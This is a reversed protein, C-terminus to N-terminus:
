FDSPTHNAFTYTKPKQQPLQQAAHRHAEQQQPFEQILFETAKEAKAPTTESPPSANSSEPNCSQPSSSWDEEPPNCQDLPQEYTIPSIHTPRPMHIVTSQQFSNDEPSPQPPADSWSGTTIPGSSCPPSIDQFTTYHSPASLPPVMSQYQLQNLLDFALPTTPPSTIDFHMPPQFVYNGAIQPNPTLGFKSESPTTPLFGQLDEPTLPTPPALTTPAASPPCMMAAMEGNSAAHFVGAETFNSLGLPSRQASSVKRIGPYRSNMNQTSKAHRVAHGAGFGSVRTTPSMSSPGVLSRNLGATGIAAPRPRKRRAALDLEREPHPRLTSSEILPPDLQSPHQPSQGVSHIGINGLSDALEESGSGRRSLPDISPHLSSFAMNSYADGNVGSNPLTPGTPGPWQNGWGDSQQQAYQANPYGEVGPHMQPHYEESHPHVQSGDSPQPQSNMASIDFTADPTHPTWVLSSDTSDGWESFTSPPPQVSESSLIVSPPHGPSTIPGQTQVHQNEDQEQCYQSRAAVAANLARQLSAFSANQGAIDPKRNSKRSNSGPTGSHEEAVSVTPVSPPQSQASESAQDSNSETQSSEDIPTTATATPAGESSSGNDKWREAENQAQMREFEEQRKQQKAKARRNQFWNAVRPLTLNTQLALQRKTDSNPKPHAQFQSELTDVQDKTLRPRSLNEAYEEYEEFSPHHPHQYFDTMELPPHAVLYGDMPHGMHPHRMHGDYGVPQEMPPAVHGTFHFPHHIYSM